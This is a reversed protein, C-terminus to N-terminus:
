GASAFTLDDEDVPVPEADDDRKPPPPYSLGHVTISGCTVASAKMGRKTLEDLVYFFNERDKVELIKAMRAVGGNVNEHEWKDMARRNEAAKEPSAYSTM